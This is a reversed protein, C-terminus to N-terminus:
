PTQAWLAESHCHRTSWQAREGTGNTEKGEQVGKTRAGSRGDRGTNLIRPRKHDGSLAAGFPCHAPGPRPASITATSHKWLAEYDHKLATHGQRM